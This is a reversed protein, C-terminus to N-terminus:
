QYAALKKRLFVRATNLYRKVSSLSCGMFDAIEELKLSDRYRLIFAQRCHSPLEDLWIRLQDSIDQDWIDQFVDKEDPIQIKGEMGLTEHNSIRGNKRLFDYCVYRTIQKIWSYFLNDSKLSSINKYISIYVEQLADQAMHADKIFYFAFRYLDDYTAYYLETFAKQDHERIRKALFAYYETNFKKSAMIGIRIFEHELICWCLYIMM